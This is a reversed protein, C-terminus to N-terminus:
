LELTRRNLGKFIRKKRQQKEKLQSVLNLTTELGQSAAVSLGWIRYSDNSEKETGM